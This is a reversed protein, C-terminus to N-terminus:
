AEHEESPSDNRKQARGPHAEQNTEQRRPEDSVAASPEGRSRGTATEQERVRTLYDVFFALLTGVLLGLFGAVAINSKKSPAIPSTPALPEDIVRIPDPIEALAIKAEQLKQSLNAHASELLAIKRDLEALTAEAVDIRQQKEALEEGITLTSRELAQIQADVIERYEEASLGFALAGALTNPDIDSTIVYTSLSDDRGRGRASLYAVVMELEQQRSLLTLSQGTLTARLAEIEARLVEIPNESLFATREDILTGLEEDTSAYNESIYSFSRMTRDQFLEGYVNTFSRTWAAAIEFLRGPDSNRISATLLFEGGSSLRKVTVSFHRKLTAISVDESLGVDQRVAALLTTSVSLEEYAEPALRSGVPEAGLESSLPPLLLLSTEIEYTPEMAMSAGLAAIVAAVFTVAIVWKQRWLIRLYDIFEVEHDKM